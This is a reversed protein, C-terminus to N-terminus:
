AAGGSLLARISDLVDGISRMRRLQADDVEIAFTEEIECALQVATLSDVGLEDFSSALSLNKKPVRLVASFLDLVMECLPDAVTPRRTSQPTNDADDPVSRVSQPDKTNM